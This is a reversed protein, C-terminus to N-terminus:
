RPTTDLRSVLKSLRPTDTHNNSSRSKGQLHFYCMGRFRQYVEALNYPMIHRFSTIKKINHYCTSSTVFRKARLPSNGIGCISMEWLTIFVDVTEDPTCHKLTTFNCESDWYQSKSKLCRLSFVHGWWMGMGKTPQSLQHKTKHETRFSLTSLM